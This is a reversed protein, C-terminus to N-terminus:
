GIARDTIVQRSWQGAEDPSLALQGLHLGPKRIRPQQRQRAHAPTALRPLQDATWLARFGLDDAARATEEMAIPDANAGFNGLAGDFIM